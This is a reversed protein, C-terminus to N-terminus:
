CRRVLKAVKCPRPAPSAAARWRCIRQTALRTGGGCAAPECRVSSDHAGHKCRTAIASCCCRVAQLCTMACTTARASRDPIACRAVSRQRGVHRLHDDHAAHACAASTEHPPQLPGAAPAPEVRSGRSRPVVSWVNDEVYGKGDTSCVAASRSMSARGALGSVALLPAPSCAGAVAASRDDRPRELSCGTRQERLVVPAEMLTPRWRGAAPQAQDQPHTISQACADGPWRLLAQGRQRGLLARM